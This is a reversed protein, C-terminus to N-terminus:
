RPEEQGLTSLANDVSPQKNTPPRNKTMLTLLTPLFTLAAIMCATVGAAMVIGLSHIGRDKALVLSGFGAIATLGSVFVAKGTSRALISPHQEEAYRNLIHIGNTVGIGIVLPLIMINAPNLSVHCLGMLGGLWVSGIAVPLLSLIVSSVSRFHFLILVVIAALSYGAAQVYSDKLLETYEYLQVPMGTLNPDVTRVQDIFEKQNKRQWADKKPYVQVLFKGTVGIFMNRLAPPLDGARLGSSDDQNKLAVFTERLDTYLAQQFAALQRANAEVAVASGTMMDRRLNDTTTRLSAFQRSLAPENTGIADLAAACYGSFSYLTLSLAPIDVIRTDAPKFQLPALEHKIEGILRLKNTPNEVLYNAMTQVSAVAPLNTLQQELQVAEPATNAVIAGYLLSQGASHILKEETQVSPLSTSQLKLVNYDFRVKGIQTAAIACLVLTAALVTRPHKLWLNEIQARHRPEGVEHDIVNQRGRLLLVPLLTMMPVFCVALGGGCILGMEQIGKFRTFWMALFAGATTFAGTFIGQGTFVMATTLAAEETKGHRLEEEYRTILHVGFDIALGVLMPVFTVTLINVHGIAITAFALTYALGVILCITAKIPRGTENYGYIFILACIILAVISAVTTDKQSQVMEDYDLVPMGTVGANVGPVELQTEAVLERLRQVCEGNFNDQDQGAKIPDAEPPITKPQASLVFIRANDYTVYINTEASGSPDFLATVGPSPPTGPRHLSADAQALIRELAPLAGVLSETQANTERASTRFEKNILDFFSILNTTQGFKEIFPVYGQLQNRLEGLDSEPVFLLAKSGLMKLDNNFIVNTFYDPQALVKAGLREIFQRNKELNESEVVVALDDQQPFEKKYDLFAHQYKENQGVLNDRNTDFKLYKVTILISLVFLIVQSYIVLRRHRFVLRAVWALVRALLTDDTLKKM